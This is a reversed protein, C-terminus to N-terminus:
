RAAANPDSTIADLSSQSFCTVTLVARDGAAHSRTVLSVLALVQDGNCGPGSQDITGDANANVSFYALTTLDKVDFGSSQPLTWYPAYGFIEHSQLPPSGALSPPAPASPSTAVPLNASPHASAQVVNGQEPPHSVPPHDLAGGAPAVFSASSGGVVLLVALLGVVVPGIRRREQGHRPGGDVPYWARVWERLAAYRSRAASALVVPDGSAAGHDAQRGAAFASLFPGVELAPVVFAQVSGAGVWGGDVGEFELVQGDTGDSLATWRDASVGRLESWPVLSPVERGTDASPAIVLGRDHVEIDHRASVVLSDPADRVRGSVAEGPASLDLQVVGQLRAQIRPPVNRRPHRLSRM